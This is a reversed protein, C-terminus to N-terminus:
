PAPERCLLKTATERPHSRCYLSRQQQYRLLHDEITKGTLEVGFGDTEKHPEKELLRQIIMAGVESRYHSHEWYYQMTERGTQQPIPETTIANFGSFDMFRIDCGEQRRQDFLTVLQRKWNDLDAVNGEWYSLEALAHVPHLFFRLATGQACVQRTVTDLLQVAATVDAPKGQPDGKTTIKTFAATTGGEDAMIYELCQASKQGYTALMPLCKREAFGTVTQVADITTTMNLVRKINLLLRKFPYLHSDAVLSDILDTNGAKKRFQWGYDLGWIVVSPQYFYSTHTLMNVADGLSAGSVALNLVRNGALLPTDTPLGIESRSSGLFVIQPHYRYSAYTKAWPVLKQQPPSPRHLLPTDWQHIFYPDVQYNFTGVLALVVLVAIATTTFYARFSLTVAYATHLRDSSPM